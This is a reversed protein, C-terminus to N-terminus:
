WGGWSSTSAEVLAAMGFCSIAAYLKLYTKYTTYTKNTLPLPPHLMELTHPLPCMICALVKTVRQVHM